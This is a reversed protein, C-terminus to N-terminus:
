RIVVVKVLISEGINPNVEAFYLGSDFKLATWKIENYEYPTMGTQSLKDVKFGSADYITIEVSTAEGFYYRFTTESNTIPNPYNYAIHDNPNLQESPEFHKGTVLPYNSPRSHPNLWYNHDSDQQFLLLRHGDILGVLADGEMNIRWNPVIYLDASSNVSAIEMERQGDSSLIVINNNERCVIEPKEDGLINAILPPNVSFEGEVPFGNVFTGNYNKAEIDFDTTRTIIEDLGDGDIDGLSLAVIVEATDSSSQVFGWPHIIENSITGNELHTYYNPDEVIYFGTTDTLVIDTSDADVFAVEINEDWMRYIIDDDKSFYFISGIGDIVGNGVIEQEIEGWNVVYFEADVTFKFSMTEGASSIESLSIYTSSGSNSRTSPRTVNDFRVDDETPNSDIYGSNNDYWMDWTWGTTPDAFLAYNTFGIDVAGDAEELHVKRINPNNNLGDSIDNETPETIHWILIGSGPLGYDYNDFKTIVNSVTNIEIQTEDSNEIFTDFWYGLQTSSILNDYRLTEIDKNEVIWNNRNEILFYENNTIQIKFIKDELDRAPIMVEITDSSNVQLLEPEEWGKFIRTWATPPAPIVGHGNNSGHDMMGFIGVGSEGTETDFLPPLGLHYGLLFAFTGTLGVQYDCYDSENWFIDEIADYFIHNQTEPLLLGCNIEIGNIIPKTIGVLMTEDIYASPIDYPAPDLFPYEFDEGIGAHFVVILSNETLIPEIESKASDIVDIFLQGLLSDSDVNENQLSNPSYSAISEPLEYVVEIMDYEFSVNENSVSIYYNAVAELQAEFYQHNHPPRDVIFESCRETYDSSDNLIKGNGCTNPDDETEEVFEVMLGILHVNSVDRNLDIQSRHLRAFYENGFVVQIILLLFCNFRSIKM